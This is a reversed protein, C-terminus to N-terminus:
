NIRCAFDRSGLTAKQGTTRVSTSTKKSCQCAFFKYITQVSTIEDEIQQIKVRLRNADKINVQYLIQFDHIYKPTESYLKFATEYLKSLTQGTSQQEQIKLKLLNSVPLNLLSAERQIRVRYNEKLIELCRKNIIEETYLDQFSKILKEKNVRLKLEKNSYYPLQKEFDNDFIIKRLELEWPTVPPYLVETSSYFDNPINITQLPSSSIQEQLSSTTNLAGFSEIFGSAHSVLSRDVVKQMKSSIARSKRFSQYSSTSTDSSTSTLPQTM